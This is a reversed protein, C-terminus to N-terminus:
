QISLVALNDAKSNGISHVDEKKTHAKVHLFNVNKKDKYITYIKRVLDENPIDKFNKLSMKEGYDTACRIAYKSDSVITLKKGSEIEKKLIKYVTIIAILEARNNTQKGKISASLNRKDDEGFYIGIGAKANKKGNNKCAGDTYVFFNNIM